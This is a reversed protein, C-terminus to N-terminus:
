RQILKGFSQKYSVVPDPGSLRGFDRAVLEAIRDKLCIGTRWPLVKVVNPNEAQRRDAQPKHWLHIFPLYGFCYHGMTSCRDFFDDDEGGWDVFGEDFGGLRFFSGRRIAITGGKWNQLVREPTVSRDCRDFLEIEQTQRVDLYFLMRQISAVEMEDDELVRCVESAYAEPVCIDGDQFVLIGSSALRAGVNYAWSKYWGSPLHAKRLYQYVIGEPMEAQAPSDSQDVVIVEVKCNVQAFISRITRRLQPIRDMGSHALVFSVDPSRTTRPSDRFTIPWETIAAAYLKRALYPLTECAVLDSGWRWECRVGTGNPNHTLGETRNCLGIWGRPDSKFGIGSRRLARRFTGLDRYLVGLVRRFKSLSRM